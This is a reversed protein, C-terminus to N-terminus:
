NSYTALYGSTDLHMIVVTSRSFSNQDQPAAAKLFNLGPEQIAKFIEAKTKMIINRGVGHQFPM